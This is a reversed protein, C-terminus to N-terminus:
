RERASRAILHLVRRPIQAELRGGVLRARAGARGSAVLPVADGVSGGLEASRTIGSETLRLALRWEGSAPFDARALKAAWGSWALRTLDGGVGRVHDPRRRREARVVHQQGTGSTCVIEVVDHRGAAIYRLFATGALVLGHRDWWMEELRVRLTVLETIDYAPEPADYRPDRLGPLWAFVQPPDVRTTLALRRATRRAGSSTSQGFSPEVVGTANDLLVAWAAACSGAALLRMVILARISIDEAELHITRLRAGLRRLM